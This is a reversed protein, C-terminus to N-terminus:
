LLIDVCFLLAFCSFLLPFSWFLWFLLAVSCGHLLVAVFCCISFPVSVTRKVMIEALHVHGQGGNCIGGAVQGVEDYLM